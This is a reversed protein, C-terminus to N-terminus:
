ISRFAFFIYTDNNIIIKPTKTCTVQNNTLGEGDSSYFKDNCLDKEFFSFRM